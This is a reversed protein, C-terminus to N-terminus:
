KLIIILVLLITASSLFIITTFTFSYLYVLGTSWAFRRFIMVVFMNRSWFSEFRYEQFLAGWRWFTDTKDIKKFKYNILFVLAFPATAFIVVTALAFIAGFSTDVGVLSMDGLQLFISITIWIISFEWGRIYLSWVM